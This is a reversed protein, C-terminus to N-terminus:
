MPCSSAACRAQGIRTRACRRRSGNCRTSTTGSAMAPRASAGYFFFMMPDIPSLRIAREADAVRQADSLGLWGRTWSRATYALACNPNLTLSRQILTLGRELQRDLYAFAFGAAWLVTPDNDDFHLAKEAHDTGPADHDVRWGGWGVAKAVTHCWAALAHAQAFGPDFDIAQGLLDLATENGAESMSWVHPLARLSLDYATLDESPKRLARESEARQLKPAVAGVVSETIQDQLDFIDELTGDFRDAWIHKGTEAEILQGVIRVRNGAKRVSGELVYRVGLERGVESIGVVKNKYTFSSNRAIVFFGGVRSLATIIDEVIGDAFYDQEPDGSMNQFPLVALSPKDPLALAPRSAAAVRPPPKASWVRIPQPINKLAQDGLDAFSAEVKGVVQRQAEESLYVSGPEALKGIRAAINVGSGYIDGGEDIIDGLHVGIRLQMRTTLPVAENHREMGKQIALGCAIADVVSAFEVLMGDGTTKILRGRHASIAPDVVVSRHSRLAAHTGAEDVGM